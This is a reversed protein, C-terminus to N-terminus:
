QWQTVEAVAVVAVTYGSGSGHQWQRQWVATSQWARGSGGKRRNSVKSSNSGCRAVQQWQWKNGSGSTAVAAVVMNGSGGRDSGYQWQWIAVAMRGSGYQWQWGAVAVAVAVNGSGYQWGVVVVAVVMSGYQWGAVAVRGLRGEEGAPVGGEAGGALAQEVPARDAARGDRAADGDGFAHCHRTSLVVM